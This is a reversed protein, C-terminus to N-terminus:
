SPRAPEPSSFCRLLKQEFVQLLLLKKLYDGGHM